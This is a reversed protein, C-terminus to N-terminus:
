MFHAVSQHLTTFLNYVLLYIRIKTKLTRNFRCAFILRSYHKKNIPRYLKEFQTKEINSKAISTICLSYYEFSGQFLAMESTRALVIPHYLMKVVLMLQEFASSYNQENQGYEAAKIQM